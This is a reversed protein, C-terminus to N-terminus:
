MQFYQLCLQALGLLRQKNAIKVTVIILEAVKEHASLKAPILREIDIKYITSYKANRM